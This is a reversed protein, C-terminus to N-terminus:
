NLFLNSATTHPASSIPVCRTPAIGRPVLTGAYVQDICQAIVSAARLHSPCGHKTLLAEIFTLWEARMPAPCRLMYAMAVAMIIATWHVFDHDATSGPQTGSPLSPLFVARMSGTVLTRYLQLVRMMDRISVHVRWLRRERVFAQSAEVLKILAYECADHRVPVGFGCDRALTSLFQAEQQATLTDFNLIQTKLSPPLANVVFDQTEDAARVGTFDVVLPLRPHVGGASTLEVGDDSCEIIPPNIAGSWFINSPLPEGEFTGDVFCEKIAALVPVPATNLEDIFVVVQPPAQQPRVLLKVQKAAEVVEAVCGRWVNPTVKDSMTWKLFVRRLRCSVCAQLFVLLDDLSLFVPDPEFGAAGALPLPAADRAAVSAEAVAAVAVGGARSAVVANAPNELSLSIGVDACWQQRLKAKADADAHVMLMRMSNRLMEHKKAEKIADEPQAPAQDAAVSEPSGLAVAKAKALMGSMNSAVVKLKDHVADPVDVLPFRGFVGLFHQALREGVRDALGVECAWNAAGRLLTLLALPDDGAADIEAACLGRLEGSAEYFKAVRLLAVKLEAIMDPMVDSASNVVTAFM